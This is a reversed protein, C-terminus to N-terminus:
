LNGRRSQVLQAHAVSMTFLGQEAFFANGWRKHANITMGFGPRKEQSLLLSHLRRRVFGDMSRFDSRYAHCFYNFWGRLSPNLAEIVSKLSKGGKRRSLRRIKDRLANRSKNRAWRRGREFRYGLFEFNGGAEISCDTVHSKETNAEVRIRM